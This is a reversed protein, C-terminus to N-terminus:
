CSSRYFVLSHETGPGRPHTYHTHCMPAHQARWIAEVALALVSGPLRRIAPDSGSSPSLHCISILVCFVTFSRRSPTLGSMVPESQLLSLSLSTSEHWCVQIWNLLLKNPRSHTSVNFSCSLLLTLLLAILAVSGRWDNFTQNEWCCMWPCNGWDEKIRDFSFLSSWFISWHLLQTLFVSSLKTPLFILVCRCHLACSRRPSKKVTQELALRLWNLQCM